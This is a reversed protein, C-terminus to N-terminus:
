TWTDVLELTLMSVNGFRMQRQTVHHQIAFTSHLHPTQRRKCGGFALCKASPPVEAEAGCGKSWPGSRGGSAVFSALECGRIGAGGVEGIEECAACVRRYGSQGRIRRRWGRAPAKVRM